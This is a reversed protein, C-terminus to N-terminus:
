IKPLTRSYAVAAMVALSIFVSMGAVALLQGGHERRVADDIRSIIFCVLAVPITFLVGCVCGRLGGSARSTYSAVALAVVVVFLFPFSFDIPGGVSADHYLVDFTGSGRM